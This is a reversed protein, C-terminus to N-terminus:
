PTSPNRPKQRTFVPHRINDIIIIVVAIVYFSEMLMDYVFAAFGSTYYETLLLLFLVQFGFFTSINWKAASLFHKWGGVIAIFLQWSLIIITPLLLTQIRQPFSAQRGEYTFFVRFLYEGGDQEVAISKGGGFLTLLINSVFAMLRAYLAEAGLMWIATVLLAVGLLIFIKRVM